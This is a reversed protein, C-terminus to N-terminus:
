TARPYTPVPMRKRFLLADESVVGAKKCYLISLTKGKKGLMLFLVGGFVTLVMVGVDGHTCVDVM